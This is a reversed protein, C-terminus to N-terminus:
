DVVWMTGGDPSSPDDSRPVFRIRDARIKELADDGSEPFTGSTAASGSGSVAYIGAAGAAALGAGRALLTRRSVTATADQLQAELEEIRAKLEARTPETNKDTTMTM